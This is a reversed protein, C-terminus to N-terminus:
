LKEKLHTKITDYNHIFTMLLYIGDLKKKDQETLDVVKDVHISMSVSPHRFQDQSRDGEDIDINYYLVKLIRLILDKMDKDFNNKM